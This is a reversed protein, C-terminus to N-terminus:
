KREEQGIPSDILRELREELRKLREIIKRAERDTIMRTEEGCDYAMFKTIGINASLLKRQEIIWPESDAFVNSSVLL